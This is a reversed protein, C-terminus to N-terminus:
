LTHSYQHILLNLVMHVLNVQIQNLRIYYHYFDISNYILQLTFQLVYQLKFQHDIIM